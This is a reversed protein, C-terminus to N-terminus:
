HFKRVVGFSVGTLRSIQRISLGKKILLKINKDRSANDLRQFEAVNSCKTYRYIIKIADEDTVRITLKESVDLCKETEEENHFEVFVNIPIINYIEKKDVVDCEYIYETYSSYQYDEIKDCIGAKVPNQHIYRLVTLLYEDSEVPESKFRDQFLHGSRKYKTNYWYVFRGGIRKFIQELMENEQKILLHIHNGMLCYAYIKFGSIEKCDKMIQIFKEYDEKEEFIQQQNIGRLMVHYIGIESTKRATRSM